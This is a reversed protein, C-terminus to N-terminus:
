ERFGVQGAHFVFGEGDDGCKLGAGALFGGQAGRQRTEKRGSAQLGAAQVVIKVLGDALRAPKEEVFVPGALSVEVGVQLAGVDLLEQRADALETRLRRLDGEPFAEASSREM